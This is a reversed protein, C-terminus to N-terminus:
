TLQARQDTATGGVRPRKPLEQIAAAKVMNSQFIVLSGSVTDIDGGTNKALLRLASLTEVTFGTKQSLDLLKGEFEASAKILGYFERALLALGVVAAAAVVVLAGVAVGVLGLGGSAETSLAGLSRLRSAVGGMPGQLTASSSGLAQMVDTIRQLNVGVPQVGSALQKAALETRKFEGILAASRQRQLSSAAALQQRMSLEGKNVTTTTQATQTLEKRVEAMTSKLTGGEARIKFLLETTSAM